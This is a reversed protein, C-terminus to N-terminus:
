ALGNIAAKLAADVKRAAEEQMGPMVHSYVDLTIGITSHGLRESVVKPLVGRKLLLTAHSHRLDHFRLGRMLIRNALEWFSNTINRPKFPQGDAQCCVLDNVQYAPGLMLRFKAQEVRHRKLADIALEPLAIVRRSKQTKPEKFFLGSKTEELSQRVALTGSELDIDRWRLALIEGRRLGTTVALLIPLHLRGRSAAELLRATEDEDLARMEKRVPRPPEVADAPNRALLQWRVAQQLAQRLIRHHHLVTRASLGSHNRRRGSELAKSYSNQIHLPKLAAIAHHGLAPVLHCRIIESYREFTKASINHKAYDSLWRGLYHRLLFKSPEIYSGSALETLLRAMERQADRKAGHVTHWKQQRKGTEPDRGVDLIIAWSNKGRERIHGKM